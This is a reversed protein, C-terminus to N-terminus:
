YPDLRGLDAEVRAADAEVVLLVVPRKQLHIEQVLRLVQESDAASGSALLLLGDGAAPYRRVAEFSCQWPVLGLARGLRALIDGALRPNDAALTLCPGNM